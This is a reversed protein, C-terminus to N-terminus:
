YWCDAVGESAEYVETWVDCDDTVVVASDGCSVSAAM